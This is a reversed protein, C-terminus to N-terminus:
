PPVKQKQGIRWWATLAHQRNIPDYVYSLGNGKGSLYMVAPAIGEKERTIIGSVGLYFSPKSNGPLPNTTNIISTVKKNQFYLKGGLLRNQTVSDTLRIFATSDDWLVRDYLRLSYYDKAVAKPDSVPITDHITDRVLHFSGTDYYVPYPRPILKTVPIKDGPIIITQTSVEPSHSCKKMTWVGLGIGLILFVLSSILFLKIRM